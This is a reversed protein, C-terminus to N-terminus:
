IRGMLDSRNKRYEYYINGKASLRKGPAKARRGKDFEISSSGNQKSKSKIAIGNFRHALNLMDQTIGQKKRKETLKVPSKSVKARPAAKKKKSAVKKKPATKKASGFKLSTQGTSKKKTPKKIAAM